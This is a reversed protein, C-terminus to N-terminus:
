YKIQIKRKYTYFITFKTANTQVFVEAFVEYKQPIFYFKIGHLLKNLIGVGESDLQDVNGAVAAVTNTKELNEEELIIEAENRGALLDEINEEEDDNLLKLCGGFYSCIIIVYFRSVVKLFLFIFVIIFFLISIDTSVGQVDPFQTESNDKPTTVTDRRRRRKSIEAKVQEEFLKELDINADNGDGAEVNKEKNEEDGSASIIAEIDTKLSRSRSDEPLPIELNLDLTDSKEALELISDIESPLTRPDVLASYDQFGSTPM